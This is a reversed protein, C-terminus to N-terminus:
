SAPQEGSPAGEAPAAESTGEAEPKAEGEAKAEPTETACTAKGTTIDVLRAMAKRSFIDGILSSVPEPRLLAQRVQDAREGYASAVRDVEVGLEEPKVEIKEVKGVESLALSRRLREEAEPRLEDRLQAPSKHTLRLYGELTFGQQRLRSEQRQILQDIQREVALGPYEIKSQQVLQDLARMAERDRAEAEMQAKLGERLRSRLEEISAYEGVSRAFEDDLAPLKREKAERLTVAFAIEKGALDEQPHDQPYSLSFERTEGPQMGVIAAGFGPPSLTEGLVLATGTEDFVPEEGASGKIDLTVQDGMQAEREVPVWTGNQERLEQLLKDVQEESVEAPPEPEMRMACYDGLEVKPELPVRIKLELPETQAIRLTPRDYPQYDGGEIAQKLLDPAMIEAAEETLVDKGVTREVLVYPAKGPRFGAIRVRQSVKRAAQRMADEVRKAEPRITFEVERPAVIETTVDM